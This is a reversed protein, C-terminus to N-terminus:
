FLLSGTKYSRLYQKAQHQLAPELQRLSKGEIAGMLAKLMNLNVRHPYLECIKAFAEEWGLDQLKELTDIGISRLEGGSIFGINKAAEIPTKGEEYVPKAAEEAKLIRLLKTGNASDRLLEQFRREQTEPRKAGMVWELMYKQYGAGTATYFKWAKANAKFRKLFQPSFAAPKDEFVSKKRNKFSELGAKDVLGLKKLQNFRKISQESWVSRERRRALRLKYSQIDRRRINAITWGFCLAQDGAEASTM